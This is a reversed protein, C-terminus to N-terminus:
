DEDLVIYPTSSPVMRGYPSFFDPAVSNRKSKRSGPTFETKVRVPTRPGLSKPRSTRSGAPGSTRASRASKAPSAARKKNVTRESVPKRARPRRMPTSLSAKPPPIEKEILARAYGLALPVAVAAAAAALISGTANDM